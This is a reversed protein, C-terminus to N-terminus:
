QEPGESYDTELKQKLMKLTLFASTGFTNQYRVYEAHTMPRYNAGIREAVKLLAHTENEAMPPNYERWTPSETDGSDVPQELVSKKVEVWLDMNSIEIPQGEYGALEFLTIFDDPIRYTISVWPQREVVNIEGSMLLKDLMVQKLEPSAELVSYPIKIDAPFATIPEVVLGLVWFFAAILHRFKGNKM